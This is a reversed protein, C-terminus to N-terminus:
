RSVALALKCGGNINEKQEPSGSFGPRFDLTQPRAFASMGRESGEDRAEWEDRPCFIFFSFFFHRIFFFVLSFFADVGNSCLKM